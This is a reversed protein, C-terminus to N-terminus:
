GAAGVGRVPWAAVCPMASRGGGSVLWLVGYASKTVLPHCAVLYHSALDIIDAVYRQNPDTGETLDILDIQPPCACVRQSSLTAAHSGDRLWRGGVGGRNSAGHSM